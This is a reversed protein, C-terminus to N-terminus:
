RSSLKFGTLAPISEVVVAAAAVAAASVNGSCYYYAAAAAAAAAVVFAFGFYKWFFIVAVDVVTSPLTAVPQFM